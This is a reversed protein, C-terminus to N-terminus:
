LPPSKNLEFQVTYQNGQANWKIEKKANVIRDGKLLAEHFERALRPTTATFEIDVHANYPTSPDDISPFKALQYRVKKIEIGEKPLGDAMALCPHTSIWAFVESSKPVTLFFPSTNKQKLFSRESQALEMEIQDESLVKNSAFYLHMKESLARRKKQLISGTAFAIFVSLALCSAAYILARRKRTLLHQPPTFEKQLLQMSQKDSALGDLAFGISLCHSHLIDISFSAPPNLSLPESGFVSKWIAILEFSTAYEGLVIWPMNECPAIKEKLFVAFRELIRGCKEKFASLHAHSEWPSHILQKLEEKDRDPFDGQAAQILNAKGFPISQSLILDGGKLCICSSSSSGFHFFLLDKCEPYLLRALRYLALPTSTMKDPHAAASSLRQAHLALSDKSTAFVNVQTMKGSLSKQFPCILTQEPAFPLLTELQFPLAALVKGRTKLPIEVSRFIMEESSLGSAIRLKEEKALDKSLALSEKLPSCSSAALRISGKDKTVLAWKLEQEEISVGLMQSVFLKAKIANILKSMFM